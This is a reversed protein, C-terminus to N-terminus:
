DAGAQPDDSEPPVQFRYGVGRVTRLLKPSRPDEEIHGRLWCVHVSLTRTDGMYETEWVHRMLELRSLVRGPNRMFLALLAVEKPRLHISEGRTHLRRSDLDLVLPGARLERRKIRAGLKKVRYLLKRSTFPPEMFAEATAGATAHGKDLLLITPVGDLHARVVESVRYGGGGFSAVDLVLLDPRQSRIRALAQRQTRALTVVFGHRQLSPVLQDATDIEKEVFLIRV